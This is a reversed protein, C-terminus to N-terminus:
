LLSGGCSSGSGATCGYCHNATNIKQGMKINAIDNIHKKSSVSMNLNLMQNFDCDYVFGLYDISILSRCMLAKLTKEEFSSKLLDMYTSFYKKTILTSGFRAIPMNTITYLNNFVINYRNKLNKKYQDELIQQNPPLSFGQPNYVLNIQLNPNSGYGISNLIKLAQLSKEFVNEGRQANVNKKEYCPLSAIIEVEHKKLFDALGTKNKELLITLNCRDIVHCNIKKVKEVIYEFNENLEPAGGTLDVVKIEFKEIFKIVDNITNLNMQEKRKPGANVHCHLCSQNCKYGLNIQITNLKDRFVDPFDSKELLPYVNHM